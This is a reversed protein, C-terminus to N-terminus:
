SNGAIPWFRQHRHYLLEATQTENALYGDILWLEENGVKGRYQEESLLRASLIEGFLRRVREEEKLIDGVRGQFFERVAGVAKRLHHDHGTESGFPIFRPYGNTTSNM